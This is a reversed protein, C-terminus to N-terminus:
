IDWTVYDEEFGLHRTGISSLIGPLSDVLSRRITIVEFDPADRQAELTYRSDTVLLAAKATIFLSGSSETFMTDHAKFGSLYRRNEPSLVWITDQPLNKLRQRLANLRNRLIEKKMMVSM